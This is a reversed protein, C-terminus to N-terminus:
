KPPRRLLGGAGRHWGHVVAAHVIGSMVCETQYSCSECRYTLHPARYSYLKRVSRSRVDTM